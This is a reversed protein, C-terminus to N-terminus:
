WNRSKSFILLWKKFLLCELHGPQVGTSCDCLPNVQYSRQRFDRCIFLERRGFRLLTSNPTLQLSFRSGISNDIYAM